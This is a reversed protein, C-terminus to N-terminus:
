QKRFIMYFLDDPVSFFVISLVILMIFSLAVCGLIIIPYVVYSPLPLFRSVMWAIGGVMAGVLSLVVVLLGGLLTLRRNPIVILITLVYSCFGVLLCIVLRHIEGIAKKDSQSADDLETETAYPNEQM